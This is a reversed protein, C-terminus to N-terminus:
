WPRFADPKEMGCILSEWLLHYTENGAFSFPDVTDNEASSAFWLSGEAAQTEECFRHHDAIEGNRYWHSCDYKGDVWLNNNRMNRAVAVVFDKSCGTFASLDGADTNQLVAAAFLVVQLAFFPCDPGVQPYTQDLYKVVLKLNWKIRSNVTCNRGERVFSGPSEHPRRGVM